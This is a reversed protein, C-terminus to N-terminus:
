FSHVIGAVASYKREADAFEKADKNIGGYMFYLMTRKSMNYTAFLEWALPKVKKDHEYPYYNWNGTWSSGSVDPYWQGNWESGSRADYNYAIQAGINWANVPVTFGLYLGKGDEKYHNDFYGGALVFSGFDYMAGLGWSASSGSTPKTEFAAGLTLKNWNYTAGLAFLNKDGSGEVGGSAKDNKAIYQARFAFGKFDPSIYTLASDYRSTRQGSAVAANYTAATLNPDGSLSFITLTDDVVATQRGAQLSGWKGSLGVIAVRNFGKSDGNEPDIASELQFYVQNGKGLDEAGKIGWRSTLYGNSWQQFKGDRGNDGEINGGNSIGYGVDLAGYLSTSQAYVVGSTLLGAALLISKIRM